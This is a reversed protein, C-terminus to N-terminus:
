ALEGVSKLIKLSKDPVLYQISNGKKMLERVYTSSIDIFPFDFISVKDFTATNKIPFDHRKYIYAPYTSLISKYDRWKTIGAFSDSGMIIIFDQWLYKKKLYQLTNITYSPESLNFEVDCVKFRPNGSVAADVMKLRTTADLLSKKDKLPNHPSVVFWVEEVDTFEVFHNAIILHGIHVPNFSGFLLGINM